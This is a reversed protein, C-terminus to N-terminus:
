PKGIRSVVLRAATILASDSVGPVTGISAVVAGTRFNIGSIDLGPPPHKLAAEEGVNKVPIVTSHAALLWQPFYAHAASASPLVKLNIEVANPHEVSFNTAHYVGASCPPDVVVPMGLLKSAESVTLLQCRPPMRQLATASLAGAALVVGVVRTM